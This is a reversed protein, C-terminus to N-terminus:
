WGSYASRWNRQHLSGTRPDTAIIVTPLPGVGGNLADSAAKYESDRYLRYAMDRIRNVLAGQLDQAREFSRIGDVENTADFHYYSFQPRVFFRGVGLVEPGEGTVDRADIYDRMDQIAKLVATVAENSTRIRTATVLAQVDASDTNGRRSCPSPCHHPSRLPM